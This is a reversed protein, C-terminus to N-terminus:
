NDRNGRTGNGHHGNENRECDANGPIGSSEGCELFTIKHRIEAMTMSSCMEWTYKNDLEALQQYASYKGFSAGCSHAEDVGDLSHRYCNGGYKKNAECNSIGAILEKEKKENPAAVTFCLEYNDNLYPTMEDCTLIVEIGKDYTMGKVSIADVIIKGDDNYAEVAIVRDWRNLKLEISPNVDISIYSYTETSALNIEFGVFLFLMISCLAMSLKPLKLNKRRSQYQERQSHLFEKTQEKLKEDAKVTEFANHLKEDM